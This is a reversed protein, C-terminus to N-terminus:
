PSQRVSADAPSAPTAFARGIARGVRWASFLPPAAGRDSSIILCYAGLFAVFIVAAAGACVIGDLGVYFINPSFFFFFELPFNWCLVMSMFAYQMYDVAAHRLVTFYSKSCGHMKICLLLRYFAFTQLVKDVFFAVLSDGSGLAHGARSALECAAPRAPRVRLARPVRGASCQAHAAWGLVPGWAGSPTSMSGISAIRYQASLAAAISVDFPVATSYQVPLRRSVGCWLTCKM